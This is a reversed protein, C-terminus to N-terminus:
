LLAEVAPATYRCCGAGAAWLGAGAAVAGFAACVVVCLCAVAVACGWCAVVVSFGDVFISVRGLICGLPDGVVTGACDGAGACVGPM